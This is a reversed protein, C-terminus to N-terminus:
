KYYAWLLVPKSSNDIYSSVKNFADVGISFCGFSVYPPTILWNSDMFPMPHILIGRKYANSNSKELGHMEYCPINYMSVDFMGDASNIVRRKGVRYKGVSSKHSGPENSFSNKDAELNKSKGDNGHACYCSYVIAKKDFDYVMFRKTQNRQSFDVLICYSTNFGNNKCFRYAETIRSQEVTTSKANILFCGAFVILVILLLIVIKKMFLM